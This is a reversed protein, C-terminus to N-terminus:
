KDSTTYYSTLKVSGNYLGNVRQFVTCHMLIKHITTQVLYCLNNHSFTHIICVGEEMSKQSTSTLTVKTASELKANSSSKLSFKRLGLYLDMNNLLFYQNDTTIDTYKGPCILFSLFLAICTLNAIDMCVLNPYTRYPHLWDLIQLVICVPLPNVCNKYPDEKMYSCFQFSIWFNTNSYSNIGVNTFNQGM